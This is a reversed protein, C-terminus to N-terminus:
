YDQTCFKVFEKVLEIGNAEINQEAIVDYYELEHILIPLEKGFKNKLLDSAHIEKVIEVLMNVFAITINELSEYKKKPIKKTCEYYKFGNDLVWRKVDEATDDIGFFLEENQVWFAYNWRAELEDTYQLNDKYEEETNYGLIVTPKCPNDEDDNVYLSIAYINDEEWSLITREILQKLKDKM